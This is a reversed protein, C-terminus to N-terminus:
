WKFFIRNANLNDLKKKICINNIKSHYYENSCTEQTCYQVLAFADNNEDKYTNNSIKTKFPTEFDIKMQSNDFDCDPQIYLYNNDFLKIGITIMKLQDEYAENLCNQTEM